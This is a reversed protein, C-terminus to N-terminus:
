FVKSFKRVQLSQLLEMQVLFLTVLLMMRGPVSSPPIIFSCGAIFVALFSPLFYTWLYKSFSRAFRIEFGIVSHHHVEEQERESLHQRLEIKDYPFIKFTYEPAFNSRESSDVTVNFIVATHDHMLSRLEYPCKQLDFPFNKIDM